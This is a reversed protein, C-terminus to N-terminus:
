HVHIIPFRAINKEIPPHHNHALNPPPTATESSWKHYCWDTCDETLSVTKLAISHTIDESYKKM